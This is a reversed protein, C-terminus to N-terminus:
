IINWREKFLLLWGNSYKFKTGVELATENAMEKVTCGDM